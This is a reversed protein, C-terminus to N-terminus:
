RLVEHFKNFQKVVQAVRSLLSPCSTLGKIKLLVKNGSKELNRMVM